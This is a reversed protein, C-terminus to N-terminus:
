CFEHLLATVQITKLRIVNAPFRIAKHKWRQPRNSHPQAQKTADDEQNKGRSCQV